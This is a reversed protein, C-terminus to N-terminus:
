KIIVKKGNHIYIGKSPKYVRQGKLNYYVKSDDDTNEDVMMNDIGTTESEDETEIFSLMVKAGAPIDATSIEMFSKHNGFQKPQTMEHLTGGSIYFRSVNDATGITEKRLTVGKMFNGEVYAPSIGTEAIQYYLGTGSTAEPERYKKILVGSGAPIYTGDKGTQDGLNISTMHVYFSNGQIHYKGDDTFAIVVPNDTVPNEANVGNVESFDVDFERAFTGFTGSQTYPIQYSINDAYHTWATKYTEEASKRVYIKTTGSFEDYIADSSAGLDESTLEFRTSSLLDENLTEGILFVSGVNSNTSTLSAEKMFARVGIYEIEGPVVVEKVNNGVESGTATFLYDGVLMVAYSNNGITVSSPLVYTEDDTVVSLLDVTRAGPEDSVVIFEEKANSKNLGGVRSTNDIFSPEIAKFQQYYESNQYDSLLDKRVHITINEFMNPADQHRGDDFSMENLTQDINAPDIMEDCLFTISKLNSCLGFARGGISTVKNPIVINTLPKCDYFAYEAITKISPPLLTFNSYGKGTPFVVLTEKDKTLLIGDSSSYHTNSKNVNIATLNICSKFAEPSIDAAKTGVNVTNLAKCGRFAEREITVLGTPLNIYKIGCEAFAGNKLIKIVANDAFNVTELAVCSGFALQGISGVSAPMNFVKLCSDNQFARDGITKLTCSGEFIIEELKPNMTMSSAGITQLQSGDPFTVTKLNKNNSLGYNAKFTRVSAPFTISTLQPCTNIEVIELQSGQEFTITKLSDPSQICLEKVTNPIEVETLRSSILCGAKFIEVGELFEYTTKAPPFYMLKKGDKSYVAGEYGMLAENEPHVDYHSINDCMSIASSTPIETLNKPLTLSTLANCNFIARRLLTEVNNLNISKLYRVEHFGYSNIKTIEDPVTFSQGAKAKPYILLANEDRDYLVGEVSYLRPNNGDVVIEKLSHAGPVTGGDGDVSFETVTSSVNITEVTQHSAFAESRIKTVGEPISFSTVGNASPVYVLETKGKTYLAGDEGVEFYNSEGSITVSTVKKGVHLFCTESITQLSAPLVLTEISNRDPTNFCYDGLEIISNPLIVKTIENSWSKKQWNGSVKVVNWTQDEREVTAPITVTGSGRCGTVSVTYDSIDIVQYQFISDNDWFYENNSLALSRLPFLLLSFLFVLFFMCKRGKAKAVSFVLLNLLNRKM